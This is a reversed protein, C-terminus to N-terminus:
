FRAEFGLEIGQMWFDTTPKTDGQLTREIYTRPRAVESAYTFQYGVYARCYDTLQCGLKLGAEPVAVFHAHSSRLGTNRVIPSNLNQFDLTEINEGLGIKATVDLYWMGRRWEGIWGIQALHLDNDAKASGLSSVPIPMMDTGSFASTYTEGLHLYRYGVLLDYRRDDECFLNKRWNAEGGNLNLRDSQLLFVQRGVPTTLSTSSEGLFFLTGDLGGTQCRDLFLGMNIRLGPQFNQETGTAGNAEPWREKQIIGYLYEASIWSSGLPLCPCPPQRVGPNADPLYFRNRDFNKLDPANPNTIAPTAPTSDPTRVPPLLTPLQDPSQLFETYSGQQLSNIPIPEQASVLQPVLLSAVISTCIVRWQM